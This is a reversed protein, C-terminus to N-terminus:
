MKVSFCINIISRIIICVYRFLSRSIFVEEVDSIRVPRDCGSMHVREILVSQLWDLRITHNVAFVIGEACRISTSWEESGHLRFSIASGNIAVPSSLVHEGPSLNLDVCDHPPSVPDWSNMIVFASELSACTNIDPGSVSCDNSILTDASGNATINFTACDDQARTFASVAVLLTFAVAKMTTKRKLEGHTVRRGTM